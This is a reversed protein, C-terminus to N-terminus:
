CWCWCVARGTFGGAVAGVLSVEVPNPDRQLWKAAAKRLQEYAVFEIADFPLDRLLFAGYGAYLGRVGEKALIARIQLRVVVVTKFLLAALFAKTPRLATLSV